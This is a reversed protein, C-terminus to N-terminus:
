DPHEINWDRMLGETMVGKVILVEVGPFLTADAGDREEPSNLDRRNAYSFGYKESDDQKQLVVDWLICGNDEIKPVEVESPVPRPRKLISAPAAVLETAGAPYGASGDSIPLVIAGAEAEQEEEEQTQKSADQFVSDDSWGM